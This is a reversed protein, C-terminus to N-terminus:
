RSYSSESETSACRRLQHPRGLGIIYDYIQRSLVIKVSYEGDVPFHHRVALGGRSGFPLDEGTREDQNLLKPVDYTEFVPVVGLDGVALRSIKRAASMYREVLAPSVTLSGAMNDFGDEGADDTGLLTRGSIELSLLDRIANAYETQNLSIFRWGDPIPSQQPPETLRRRWRHLSLMSAPNTLDRFVPPPCRARRSSASFKRGLKRVPPSMGCM